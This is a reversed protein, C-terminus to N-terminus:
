AGESKQAVRAGEREGDERAFLLVDGGVESLWFTGGTGALECSDWVVEVWVPWREVGRGGPDAALDVGEVLAAVVVDDDASDLEGLCRVPAGQEPM